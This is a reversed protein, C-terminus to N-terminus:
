PNPEGSPQRRHSKTSLTLPTSPYASARCWVLVEPRLGPVLRGLGRSLASRGRTAREGPRPDPTPRWSRICGMPNTSALPSSGRVRWACRQAISAPRSGGLDQQPSQGWAARTAREGPRPDPTPSWSRICGMPNTSALPSSGRVRWACRQAISAPRSGGLDQQPSQGWAARTAREGPRPDPTPSWSRICGM